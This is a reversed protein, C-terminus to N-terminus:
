AASASRRSRADIVRECLTLLPTRMSIYRGHLQRCENELKRVFRDLEGSMKLSPARSSGQVARTHAILVELDHMRGLLDQAKKLTRLQAQTRSRGVVSAMELAYRLKKVAIRVQHLRDPLYLGAANEITLVLREARLASRERVAAIRKADTASTRPEDAHKRVAAIARKRLKDVKSAEVQQLMNQRLSEREETVSARLRTLAARSVDGSSSMEDLIQLAV